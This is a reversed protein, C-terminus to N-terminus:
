TSSRIGSGQLPEGTAGSERLRYQFAESVHREEVREAGEIDAITQAVRLIRHYGRASLLSKEFLRSLLENANPSCVVLREIDRSSLESNTAGTAGIREAQKKRAAAVQEAMQQAAAVEGPMRLEQWQVRPVTMQLDIRDLLPGSIKKQYRAIEHPACVCPKQADGFYGCPCPNMAAVLLFRAPFTLTGRVRSIHAVGNELPQRLAELLDRRFEPLEDLFLVGRHALSIEGPKPQAGGGFVAVPSATQHPTRLPRERVYPDSGLLGAASYIQTMEIVEDLSPSPLLSALAQALMTKGTGPPGSFLINHNGAAAIVLARKAQAQGRIDAMSRSRSERSVAPVTHPEAALPTTGELHQVIETLTQAGYITVGPILAAEAANARPVIVYPIHSRAALRATNMAGTIPRLSGDLALEGLLLYEHTPFPKLQKSALLYGIAIAVDYQSGTKKIDAPALNVIVRRGERNPPKVGSNKLAANIRERSESLAKDALGVISFAHLGPHLDTEVDIRRAEIGELEASFVKALKSM